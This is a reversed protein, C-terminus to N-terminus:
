SSIEYFELITATQKWFCSTTIDWGYVSIDRWFKTQLYIEIKRCSPRWRYVFDSTSNNHHRPGMNFISIVDYRQRLYHLAPSLQYALASHCAPSSALTFISIKHLIGVRCSNMQLFWYYRQTFLAMEGFNQVGVCKWSVKHLIDGFRSRFYM